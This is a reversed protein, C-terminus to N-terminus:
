HENHGRYRKVMEAIEDSYEPFAAAMEKIRKGENEAVEKNYELQERLKQRRAILSHRVEVMERPDLLAGTQRTWVDTDRIGAADLTQM